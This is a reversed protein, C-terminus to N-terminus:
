IEYIYVLCIFLEPHQCPTGWLRSAPNEPAWAVLGPQASAQNKNSVQTHNQPPLVQLDALGRPAPSCGLHSPDVPANTRLGM